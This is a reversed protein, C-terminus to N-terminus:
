CIVGGGLLEDDRYFVASQGPTVSKVPMLTQVQIRDNEKQWSSVPVPNSNYRIQVTVKEATEPEKGSIWNIEKILFERSFLDDPNDTVLLHNNDTDLELVFLPASWPTNLGKRQGITYLPLGRHRGIIRGDKHIIKGPTLSIHQRLYEQYHDKIFCIEQSDERNHVPLARTAAMERVQNKNLDQLPFITKALQQQTLRWLMYTQDKGHDDSRFLRHLGAQVKKQLYHGTAFYDAGLQLAATMLKGWKITHNCIVCPNPTRGAQYERIFDTEVCARFESTLDILHHTIGLAVCVKRADSIAAELGTGEAFGYDRNHFHQMTVGIVRYGAELLQLAAVSSDVGGSMAVAVMFNGAPQPLYDIELM